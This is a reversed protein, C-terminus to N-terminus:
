AETTEAPKVMVNPNEVKKSVVDSLAEVAAMVKEDSNDMTTSIEKLKSALPNSEGLNDQLYDVLNVVMDKIQDNTVIHAPTADTAVGEPPQETVEPPVASANPDVPAATQANPDVGEQEKLFSEVKECLETFKSM